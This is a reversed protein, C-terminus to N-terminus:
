GWGRVVLMGPPPKLCTWSQAMVRTEFERYVLYFVNEANKLICKGSRLPPEM